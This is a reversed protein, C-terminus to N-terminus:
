LRATNVNENTTLTLTRGVLEDEEASQLLGADLMKAYARAGDGVDCVAVGWEPDGERGHVVSYAAVTAPGAYTDQIAVAPQDPSPGPPVPAGPGPETSYVGYVHKTMHMGVGSVVGLAGPDDRLVRAMTAISHTLYDSGAGGHYPLGGTVTLPRPDDAGLGLADRAFNVSSSFCSYLDFYAVDDVGAGAAALATSVAHEMAPSRWLDMHEAVYVPDTAYCWGRLYVRRDLPVRMADAAEHSTLLLAGAMDVDMISVMYKTYPYGVMRNSPGATIIEEASREIPFWAEPNAAAVKTFREWQEGLQTRYEDLAVGLHARRANDFIAFTLWAQFVEHAVEAPHFPAEWPFSRKEEPKFSYPYREGKAKFRRQTALAEAGVVLAVDLESRLIQEALNQVLLQPTTGGIGSYYQRKPEVGLRQALRAVPDDYQWTQTYVIDIADLRDLVPQGLGSDDAAARAVEEWMALPEPAGADGVEDKHWTRTGVGVLCPSRPDTPM